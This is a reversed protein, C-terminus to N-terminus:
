RQAAAGSTRGMAQPVHNSTVESAPVLYGFVYAEETVTSSALMSLSTGAKLAAGPTLPVSVEGTGGPNQDLFYRGVCTSNAYLGTFNGSGLATISLTNFTVSKIILAKGSPVNYFNDCSGRSFAYLTVFNGPTTETDQLQGAATVAARAGNGGVIGVLNSAATASAPAIIAVALVGIGIWAAVPMRRLPRARKRFDLRADGLVKTEDM